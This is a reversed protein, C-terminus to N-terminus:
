PILKCTTSPNKLHMLLINAMIHTYNLILKKGHTILTGM